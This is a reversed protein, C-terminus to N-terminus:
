RRDVRIKNGAESAIEDEEVSLERSRGFHKVTWANTPTKSLAITDVHIQLQMVLM